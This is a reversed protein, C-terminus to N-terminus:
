LTMTAVEEALEQAAEIAMSKRLACDSHTVPDQGDAWAVVMDTVGISAMAAQIQITLADDPANEKFVAGSSILLIVKRLAHEPKIGEPSYTFIQGPAMVQDLWAKMIAPVGCNWMPMTLVLVDAEKFLKCQATSYASAKKEADTVEYAPDIVPQWMARYADYSLYPPPNHYLDVNTVDVDSNLEALKTFFAIALQKSVSEETPRPSACVHLVNM